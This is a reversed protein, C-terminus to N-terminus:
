AVAVVRRHIRLRVMWSHFTKLNVELAAAAATISGHTNIADALLREIPKGHRRELELMQPTKRM